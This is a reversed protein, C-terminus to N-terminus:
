DEELRLVRTELRMREKRETRMEERIGGLDREIRTVADKISSGHNPSLEHHVKTDLRSLKTNTRAQLIAMVGVVVPSLLTSIITIVISDM